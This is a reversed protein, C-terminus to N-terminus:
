SIVLLCIDSKSLPRITVYLSQLSNSQTIAFFNFGWKYKIFFKIDATQSKQRISYIFYLPLYHVVIGAKLIGNKKERVFSQFFM